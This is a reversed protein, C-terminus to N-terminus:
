VTPFGTARRWTRASKMGQAFAELVELCQQTTLHGYQEWCWSAKPCRECLQERQHELIRDVQDRTLHEKKAAHPLLIRWLGSSEAYREMRVKQPHNDYVAM